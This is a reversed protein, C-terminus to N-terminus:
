FLLSICALAVAVLGAGLFINFSHPVLTYNTSDEVNRTKLPKTIRKRQTLIAERAGAWKGPGRLRYQYPTCPGFFVEMALKIDTLFLSLLNPKFGALSAIEDLYSIYDVQLTHRQTKVYRKAMEEQKQTIDALMDNTSPLENLGKFVRTAWRGQLESTPMLAGLPQVFGIFALTPKELDPPFVLKYLSVQNDVVKLCDLFPFSFKYGTAFIVVDINDERTGDEFIAATETFESVNSKVRVKGAIIRNPLDDNITPHQSFFRHKPQLGYLAHNFAKNLKQEAYYNVMTFPLIDLLLKFFRTVYAADTPYGEELIRRQVWAGRRTSLLVQDAVYSLEVAIDLGSNGTGIVIVKKDLFEQSNKYDRSHFYRGKFKEIGPFSQLPLHADSHHGSCVLVADFIALEQKGNNETVVDWQGTTSFDPRKTVSCVNTKFRIYKLLDFHKAYMHFYEMIKFNHMYNPFDEQIPFDSFCMIEKSTNIIVSKYISARGEEPNKEYRWVGGIDSSREFCTPELGEDLCCKLSLLGSVGAGIIAVKRNAM